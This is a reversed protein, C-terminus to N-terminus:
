RKANKKKKPKSKKTLARRICDLNMDISQLGRLLEIEFQTM